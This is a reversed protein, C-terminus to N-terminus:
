SPKLLLLKSTNSFSLKQKATKIFKGQISAEVYHKDKIDYNSFSLM